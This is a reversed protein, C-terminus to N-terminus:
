HLCCENFKLFILRTSIFHLKSLFSRLNKALLFLDFNMQTLKLEYNDKSYTYFDM